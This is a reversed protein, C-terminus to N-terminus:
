GKLDMLGVHHEKETRGERALELVGRLAVLMHQERQQTVAMCEVADLAVDHFPGFSEGEQMLQARREISAELNACKEGIYRILDENERWEQVFLYKFCHQLQNSGCLEKLHDINPRAVM